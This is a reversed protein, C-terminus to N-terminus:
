KDIIKDLVFPNLFKVLTVKKYLKPTIHMQVM